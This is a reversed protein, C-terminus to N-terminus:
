QSIVLKQTEIVQSQNILSLFYIGAEDIDIDLKTQNAEIFQEKIIRGSLDTIQLKSNTPYDKYLLIHTQHITAPNPAIVFSAQPELDDLGTFVMQSFVKTSFNSLLVASEGTEAHSFLGASVDINELLGMYDAKISIIREDGNVLNATPLNVMLYNIDGLSHIQYDILLATGTKGELAAFRYGSAWGWHMDPNQLALPHGEPYTTPDLHNIEPEVGIGFRIEEIVDIDHNGLNFSMEEEVNVLLWTDEIDTVIGGDHVIKIQSVYYQLRTISYEYDLDHTYSQEMELVQDGMYNNINLIIANQAFSGFGLLVLLSFLVTKKM